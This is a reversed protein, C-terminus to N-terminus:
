EAHCKPKPAAAMAAMSSTAARNGQGTDVEVGLQQRVVNGQGQEPGAQSEIIEIFESVQM